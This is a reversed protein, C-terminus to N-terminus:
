RMRSRGHSTVLNPGIFLLITHIANGHTQVNQEANWAVHVHVFTTRCLINSGRSEQQFQKKGVSTSLITLAYCLHREQNREPDSHM